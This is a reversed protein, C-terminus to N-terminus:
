KGILGPGIKPNSAFECNGDGSGTKTKIYFTPFPQATETEFKACAKGDSSGEISKLKGCKATYEITATKSADLKFTSEACATKEWTIKGGTVAKGIFDVIVFKITPPVCGKAGSEVGDDTAAKDCSKLM